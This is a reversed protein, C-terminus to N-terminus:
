DFRREIAPSQPARPKALVTRCVALQAFISAEKLSITQALVLARDFDARALPVFIRDFPVMSLGYNMRWQIVGDDTKVTTSKLVSWEPAFDIKNIENVIAQATQFPDIPEMARALDLMAALKLPNSELGDILIRAEGVLGGARASEKGRTADAINCFMSAREIPAPLARAYGYAAVFDQKQLATRAQATLVQGNLSSRLKPEGIKQVVSSAHDYEANTIYLMVALRYLSDRQQPARATDGKTEQDRASSPSALEADRDPWAPYNGAAEDLKSRLTAAKEPMRKDFYPLLLRVAPYVVAAWTTASHNYDASVSQQMVVNFVFDLFSQIIPPSAERSPAPAKGPGFYLRPIGGYDPFVYTSLWRISGSFHTPDRQVVSLAYTFLEDAAATDKQSLSELLRAFQSFVNINGASENLGTKAAEIARAPDTSLLDSALFMYHNARQDVAGNPGSGPKPGPGPPSKLVSEILERALAPDRESLMRLIESRLPFRADIQEYASRAYHDEDTPLTALPIAQFASSLLRRARPQDYDWLTNGIQAQLRIRLDDDKLNKTAALLQDLLELSREEASPAQPAPNISNALAAPIALNLSGVLFLACWARSAYSM